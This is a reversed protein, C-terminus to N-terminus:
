GSSPPALKFVVGRGTQHRTVLGAEVLHKYAGEVMSEPIPTDGFELRLEEWVDHVSKPRRDRRTIGLVRRDFEGVGELGPEIQLEPLGEPEQFLVPEPELDTDIPRTAEYRIVELDRPEPRRMWLGSTVLTLPLIERAAVEEVIQALVETRGKGVRVWPRFGYRPTAARGKTFDQVLRNVVEIEGALRPTEEPSMNLSTKKTSVGVVLKQPRDYVGLRELEGRLKAPDIHVGRGLKTHGGSWYNLSPLYHHDLPEFESGGVQRAIEVVRGWAELGEPALPRCIDLVVQPDRREAGSQPPM